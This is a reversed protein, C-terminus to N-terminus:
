CYLNNKEIYEIVRPSTLGELSKGHQILSRIETASINVLDGGLFHIRSKFPELEPTLVPRENKRPYVVLEVWQLLDGFKKWRHFDVLNDEGILLQFSYDPHKKLLAQVTDITYSPKPLGFEIDCVRINNESACALQAMHLRDSEPALDFTHKFPNQPSVVLWVEDAQQQALAHRAVHLHGNHIPNFSGFYLCITM